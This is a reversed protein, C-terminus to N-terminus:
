RSLKTCQITRTPLSELAYESGLSEKANKSGFRWVPRLKKKEENNVVDGEQLPTITPLSASRTKRSSGYGIINKITAMVKEKQFKKELEEVLPSSTWTPEM